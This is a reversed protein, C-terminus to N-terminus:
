NMMSLAIKMSTKADEIVNGKETITTVKVGGVGVQLEVKDKDPTNALLRIYGFMDDTSFSELLIAESTKANEYNVKSQSNEFSNYFVILTQNGHYLIANYPDVEEVEMYDPLYFSFHEGKYNDEPVEQSYFIEQVTQGAEEFIMEDSKYSFASIIIIFLVLIGSIMYAIKPM